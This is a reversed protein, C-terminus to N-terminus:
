LYGKFFKDVLEKHKIRELEWSSLIENRSANPNDNLYIKIFNIYAWKAKPASGYIKRFKYEKSWMDAFEQYTPPKDEMWRSELWDIGFATFHFHRGIIEKFFLRTKLDNKYGGKLILADPSLISNNRDKLVSTAPYESLNLKEGNKIFHIIRNIFDIKKRKVFLNLKECCARLESVYLYHLSARLQDHDINRLSM